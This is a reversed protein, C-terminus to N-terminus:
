KQVAKLLMEYSPLGRQLTGGPLLLAVGIADALAIFPAEVFVNYGIVQEIAAQDILDEKCEVLLLPFLPFRTHIGKAFCIIDARREPLVRPDKLLHPLLKLEREVAILAPPFGLKQVMVQLLTQRVMEEPTRKVWQRRVSDYLLDSRNSKSSGTPAM